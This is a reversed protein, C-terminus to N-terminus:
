VVVSTALISAFTLNMFFTPDHRSTASAARVVIRRSSPTFSGLGRQFFRMRRASCEGTRLSQKLQFHTSRGYQTDTCKTRWLNPM